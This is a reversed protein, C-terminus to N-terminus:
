VYLPLYKTAGNVTVELWSDVSGPTSPTNGTEGIMDVNAVMLSGSTGDILMTSNDAFVSGNLDGNIGAYVTLDETILADGGVTLLSPNSNGFGISLGTHQWIMKSRYTINGDEGAVGWEIKGPLNGLAVADESYKKVSVLTEALKQYTSGNYAYNAIASAPENVDILTPSEISGKSSFIDINTANSADTIKNIKISPDVPTTNTIEVFAPNLTDTATDVLIGSTGEVNGVIAGAIGDVLLTSDDSFVSGKLEGTVNGILTGTITSSTADVIVTSDDALVNGTIDGTVDGTLNGTFTQTTTDVMITSDDAAINIRYNSGEVVSGDGALQLLKPRWENNNANWALVEGNNPTTSDGSTNVDSLSNISQTSLDINSDVANGGETVGDGVFLRKTDTTYILEGALPTITLRQADTGRRLRLAM